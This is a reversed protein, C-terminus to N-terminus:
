ADNIYVLRIFGVEQDTKTNILDVQKSIMVIFCCMTKMGLTNM